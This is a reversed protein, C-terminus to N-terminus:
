GNSQKGGDGWVFCNVEWASNDGICADDIAEYELILYENDCGITFGTAPIAYIRFIDGAKVKSITSLEWEAGERLIRVERDTKFDPKREWEEKHIQPEIEGDKGIVEM